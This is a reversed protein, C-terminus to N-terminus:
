RSVAEAIRKRLKEKEYRNLKWRHDGDTTHMVEVEADSGLASKLEKGDLITMVTVKKGCAFCYSQFIM